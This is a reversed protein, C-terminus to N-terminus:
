WRVSTPLTTPMGSPPCCALRRQRHGPRAREGHVDSPESFRITQHHDDRNSRQECLRDAGGVAFQCPLHVHRFQQWQHRNAPPSAADYGYAVSSLISSPSNLISFGTRRLLNDYANTVSLGNLPGGLYSESLPEGVDNYTWASITSGNTVAIPRGLRDYVTAVSPTSDSYRVLAEKGANDYAYTTALSQGGVLRSWLRSQLRGAATYTYNPGNGDACTKNTLFGRYVDYNWTTVAAGSNGAFNTWTTMTKTRGAYDYTYAVPYTRSGFTEQRLGNPYYVNTVSTGDPQITQIVRGMGDLINTTLQGPHIGDPSPTLTAVVQDAANYFSTSTGNRADTVTYQRGQTDYGYTTQGLQAGNSDYRVASIYRGYQSTNVRSSGDPGIQTLITYGNVPDLTTLSYNTLGVGNHWVINWSQMGDVSTMITSVLNSANMGNTSWVYTQSRKSFLNYGNSVVDNVTYTIRDNGGFDIVGNANMDVATYAVEGKLNYQYLTTVGDPDLQEALQGASNYFSQSAPTGTASSYITKYNRSLMDSYAKTWETTDNGNADLKITQKYPRQVSGDSEMGYAYRVPLVATGTVELLSGDLAYTEIQTTLDPNTTVKIFQGTSDFYNTYTTTNGLGDTTSILQGDDAYASRSNTVASGDTGYRVTALVNGDADLTNSVTIGNQVTLIQRQLADYGYSTVTGDPATSSQVNCCDYTQQSSTRNLYITNTCHNLSDYYYKEQDTITQSAVDTVRHLVQRQLQDSWTEDMTGDVVYTYTPDAQGTWVTTKDYVNNAQGPCGVSTDYEFVKITGDPNIIKSPQGQNVVDQFTFTTTVLNGPDNWAAGLNVCQIDMEEGPMFVTYGRSVEQGLVYNVVLRPTTLGLNGCDGSGAVVSDDYTSATYRCLAANTTPPSNLFASYHGVQRDVADYSYIDWTGDPHNDQQIM